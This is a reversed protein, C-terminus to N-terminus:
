IAPPLRVTITTGAEPDSEVTIEGGLEDLGWKAISLGISSAHDVQTRAEDFVPAYEDPPLGPGDDSVVIEVGDRPPSPTSATLRVTSGGHEVANELLQGVVLRLLNPYTRVTLGDALDTHITTEETHQDFEAAVERLLDDIAVQEVPVDSERVRDLERIQESIDNLRNGETLIRDAFRELRSDQVTEKIQSAFGNIVTVANRLNHRM